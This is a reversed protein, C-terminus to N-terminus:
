AWRILMKACDFFTAATIIATLGRFFEFTQVQLVNQATYLKRENLKTTPYRDPHIRLLLFKVGREVGGFHQDEFTNTSPYPKKKKKQTKM